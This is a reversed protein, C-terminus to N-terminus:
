RRKEFYKLEFICWSQPDVKKPFHEFRFRSIWFGIFFQSFAKKRLYHCRFIKCYITDILFLISTAPLWHTVFCDQSKAYWESLSKDVSNDESHDFFKTFTSGNLSWCHRPSNVINSTSPDESIDSKLCKDLWTKRLRYTWFCLM